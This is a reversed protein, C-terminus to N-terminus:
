ESPHDTRDKKPASYGREKQVTMLPRRGVL